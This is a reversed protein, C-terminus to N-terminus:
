ILARTGQFNPLPAQMNDAPLVNIVPNELDMEGTDSMLIPSLVRQVELTVESHFPISRKGIVDAYKMAEEYKARAEELTRGIIPNVAAFFKVTYPDRGAARCHDRSTKIQGAAQSPVLGGIYVAEAHKAAFAQGVKSTGAQFM